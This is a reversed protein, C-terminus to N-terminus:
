IKRFDPVSNELECLKQWEEITLTQPRRTPDIGAKELLQTIEEKSIPLASKLSNLLTKRKQAFCGHILRFFTKTDKILSEPYTEIKIIASDVKPRPFFSASSVIQVIEPKGFIQVQLSLVSQDGPKACIKEAVEKQVLLVILTPHLSQPAAPIDDSHTPQLFHNLLPSTIYYPINAVLKYPKTPLKTKLADDLIIELNKHHGLTNKLMPILRQDVEISQVQGSKQALENTLIGLGPGVEIVFDEKNLNAAEVIKNLVQPNVLFNQGLRKQAYLGNKKLLEILEPINNYLM